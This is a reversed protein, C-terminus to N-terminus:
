PFFIRARASTTSSFASRRCSVPERARAIRYYDELESQHQVFLPDDSSLVRILPYDSAAAHSAAFLFLLFTTVALSRKM